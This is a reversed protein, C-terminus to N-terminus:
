KLEELKLTKPDLRMVMVEIPGERSGMTLRVAVKLDPAYFTTNNLTGCSGKSEGQYTATYWKKEGLKYFHMKEPVRKRGEAFVLMIADLEPVYDGSPIALKPAPGAPREESWKKAKFDFTWIGADKMVVYVLRDRKSDHILQDYETHGKRGPIAGTVKEWKGGAVDAKFLGKLGYAFLGRPTSCYCAQYSQTRGPPSGICGVVMHHKISYLQGELNIVTGSVPDVGFSQRTHSKLNTWGFFNTGPHAGASGFLWRPRFTTVDAMGRWRNTLVSYESIESGNYGFHAGGYAFATHTKKDYAHRGWVRAPAKLPPALLKWTNAPLAALRARVAKPDEPARKGRLWEGPLPTQQRKHIYNRCHYVRAAGASAPAKPASDLELRLAYVSEKKRNASSFLLVTGSEPDSVASCQWAPAPLDLGLRTWENKAVRYVWVDGLAKWGGDYGGALLVAKHQPVYVMAHGARPPPSAKPKVHKWTRKACDYIWTDDLVRADNDGGFLVIKKASADYAAGPFWRGSPQEALPQAIMKWQRAAEPFTWTGCNGPFWKRAETIKGREDPTLRRVRGLKEDLIWDGPAVKEKKAGVRGWVAGGGVSIAEQNHADYCLAGWLPVPMGGLGEATGFDSGKQSLRADAVAEWAGGGPAVLWTTARQKSHMLPPQLVLLKKLGPLYLSSSPSRSIGYGRNIHLQYGAPLEAPVETWAREQVSFQALAYSPGSRPISAPWVLAVGKEPVWHIRNMYGTVARGDYLTVWKNAPLKSPGAGRAAAGLLVTATLIALTRTEKM